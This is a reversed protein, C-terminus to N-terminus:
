SDAQLTPSRPEIGPNLLDGPSPCPWGNRYEKRSFGMSLHAQCAVTWPTAFLQVHSLSEACCTCAAWIGKPAQFSQYALCSHPPCLLCFCPTEFSTDRQQRSQAARHAMSPSEDGPLRARWKRPHQPELPQKQGWITPAAPVSGHQTATSQTDRIQRHCVLM